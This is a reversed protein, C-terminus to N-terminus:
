GPLLRMRCCHSCVGFCRNHSWRVIVWVPIEVVARADFQSRRVIVTNFFFARPGSKETNYVWSNTIYDASSGGSLDLKFSVLLFENPHNNRVLIAGPVGFSKPVSFEVNFSLKEATISDFIKLWGQLTVEESTVLEGTGAM